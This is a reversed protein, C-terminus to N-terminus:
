KEAEKAIYSKSKVVHVDVYPPVFVVGTKYQERIEKCIQDRAEQKIFGNFKLVLIDHDVTEIKVTTDLKKEARKLSLRQLLLLILLAVTCIGSIASTFWIIENM